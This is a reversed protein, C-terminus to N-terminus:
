DVWDIRIDGFAGELDVTLHRRASSWNDSYFDDDGRRSMRPAEFSALITQKHVRVGVDRPVRITLSGLGFEADVRTDGRWRGTFDLTLDAVGGHLQVERVNANGLGRATFQAAGVDINLRDLQVRNPASFDVRTESAGTSIDLSRVSLGGLEIEAMAAGFEFDLDLPVNPGLRLTMRGGHHEDHDDPLHLNDNGDIGLRLRGGSYEAIPRFGRADYRLSAQYLMRGEAPEVVLRGAGYGVEVALSEENTTQRMITTTRWDQAAAAGASLALLATVGAALVLRDSM